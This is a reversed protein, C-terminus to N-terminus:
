TGPMCRFPARVDPPGRTCAFSAWFIQAVASIDEGDSHSSDPASRRKRLCGSLPASGRITWDASGSLKAATGVHTGMAHMSCCLSARTVTGHAEAAYACPKVPCRASMTHGSRERTQTVSTLESPHLVDQYRRTFRAYQLLHARAMSSM